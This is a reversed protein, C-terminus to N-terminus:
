EFARADPDTEAGIRGIDSLLVPIKSDLYHELLRLDLDPSHGRTM